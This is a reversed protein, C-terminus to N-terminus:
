CPLLKGYSNTAAYPLGCYPVAAAPDSARCHWPNALQYSQTDASRAYQLSAMSLVLAIAGHFYSPRMKSNIGCGKPLLGLEASVQATGEAQELPAKLGNYKLM